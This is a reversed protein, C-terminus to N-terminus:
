GADPLRGPVQAGQRIAHFRVRSPLLLPIWILVTGAVALGKALADRKGM